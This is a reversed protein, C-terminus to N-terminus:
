MDIAKAVADMAATRGRADRRDLRQVLDEVESRREGVAIVNAATDAFTLFGIRTDTPLMRLMGLVLMKAAPIKDEMSGSMDLVIVVRQPRYSPVVRKILATRGQVKAEFAFPNPAHPTKSDRSLLSAVVSVSCVEQANTSCALGAILALCNLTQTRM